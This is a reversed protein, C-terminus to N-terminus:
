VLLVHPDRYGKFAQDHTALTFGEVRAQALLMRDFPDKHVGETPLEAAEFIHQPVLQLIRFGAEECDHAFNPADILMKNPHAQHKLMVEWISVSSVYWTQHPDAMLQRAKEPLSSSGALLWLALHTDALYTM